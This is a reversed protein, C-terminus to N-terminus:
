KKPAEAAAAEAKKLLTKAKEPQGAKTYLDAMATYTKPFDMSWPYLDLQAQYSDAALVYLEAPMNERGTVADTITSFKPEDSKAIWVKGYVAAQKPDTKVLSWFTFHGLYPYYKLAPEKANIKEIELLAEQPKGPNGMFPNLVMMINNDIASLREWEKRKVAEAQNNWTGSVVQPLIKDLNKPHGAWAIKGERDVVFAHPIGRQGYAKLWNDAMFKDQEFGVAYDMKDGMGAVFKEIMPITTAAREMISIGLVSVDKKYENALKSLHPMGAICPLCWTAWFEVVYIRGKKFESISDGKFWKAIKLPPAPDGLSKLPKPEATQAHSRTVNFGSLVNFVLISLLVIRTLKKM